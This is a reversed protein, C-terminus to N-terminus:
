DLARYMEVLIMPLITYNQGEIGEMITKSVMALRTHLKGGQMPFILLGMFYVLFVYVQRHVWGISTIDLEEHYLRYSKIYGYWEYLFDFNIYSKKLCDLEDNKKFRVMKLFGRPICNEPVLLGLSGM